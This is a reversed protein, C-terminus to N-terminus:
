NRSIQFHMLDLLTTLINVFNIIRVTTPHPLFDTVEISSKNSAQGADFLAKALNKFGDGKIVEFARGDLACFETCAETVSLKVKLPIPSQKSSSYF